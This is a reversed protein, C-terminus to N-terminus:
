IYLRGFLDPIHHGCPHQSWPNHHDLPTTILPRLLCFNYVGPSTESLPCLTCPAYHGLWLHHRSSGDWPRKTGLCTGTSLVDRQACCGQIMPDWTWFMGYFLIIILTQFNLITMFDGFLSFILQSAIELSLFYKPCLIRQDAKVKPCVSWLPEYDLTSIVLSTENPFADDHWRNSLLLGGMVWCLTFGANCIEHSSPAVAITESSFCTRNVLISTLLQDYTM